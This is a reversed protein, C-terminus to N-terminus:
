DVVIDGDTCHIVYQRSSPAWDDEKSVAEWQAKTGGFHINTLSACGAFAEMGISIITSPLRISTMSACGAFANQHIYAIGEAITVDTIGTCGAFANSWVSVVPFEGMYVPEIAVSGALTQNSAGMCTFIMDDPSEALRYDQEYVITAPEHPKEPKNGETNNEGNSTDGGPANNDSGANPRDNEDIVGDGSIDAGDGPTQEHNGEYEGDPSPIPSDEFCGTLVSTVLGLILALLLIKKTATM